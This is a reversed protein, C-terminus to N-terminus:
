NFACYISPSPPKYRILHYDSHETFSHFWYAFLNLKLHPLSTREPRNFLKFKQCLKVAFQQRYSLLYRADIVVYFKIGYKVCLKHKLDDRACKTEM